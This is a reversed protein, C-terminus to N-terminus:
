KVTLTGKMGAAAHGPITCLYPYTGAKKFTVTLTASKGPALIPTKKGDIKFDHALKGENKLAFTVTGPKAVSSSSLQFHFESPKGITVKVSTTKAAAPHAVAPLSWALAATAATALLLTLKLRTM